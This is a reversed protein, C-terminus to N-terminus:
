VVGLFSSVEGLFCVIPILLTVCHCGTEPVLMKPISNFSAVFDTIGQYTLNSRQELL